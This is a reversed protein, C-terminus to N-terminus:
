EFVFEDFSVRSRAYIIIYMDNAYTCIVDDNSAETAVFSAVSPRERTRERHPVEGFMEDKDSQV